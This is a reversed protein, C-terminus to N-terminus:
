RRISVRELQLEAGEAIDVVPGPLVGGDPEVIVDRLGLRASPGLVISGVLHTEVDGWAWTVCDFGGFVDAAAAVELDEVYVGACVYVPEGDALALGQGITRVPHASTGPEADHGSADVFVGCSPGM